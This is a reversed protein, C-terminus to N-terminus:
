TPHSSGSIRRGPRRLLPASSQESDRKSHPSPPAITPRRKRAPRRRDGDGPQREAMAAPRRGTGSAAVEAVGVVARCARECSRPALLSGQEVLIEGIRAGTERQTDLAAELQDGSIFGLEVFIEGLPRRIQVEAPTLPEVPPSRDSSSRPPRGSPRRSSRGNSPSCVRSSSARCVSSRWSSRGLREGTEEQVQLARELQETTILNKEVLIAGILRSQIATAAEM